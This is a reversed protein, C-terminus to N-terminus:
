LNNSLATATSKEDAYFTHQMCMDAMTDMKFTKMAKKGNKVM